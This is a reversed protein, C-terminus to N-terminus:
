LFSVGTDDFVGTFAAKGASLAGGSPTTGQTMWEIADRLEQKELVHETVYNTSSDLTLLGTIGVAACVGKQAVTWAFKGPQRLVSQHGPYNQGWLRSQQGNPGCLKLAVDRAGRKELGLVLHHFVEMEGFAGDRRDGITTGNYTDFGRQYPRAARVLSRRTPETVYAPLACNDDFVNVEVFVNDDNSGPELETNLGPLNAPAPCLSISPLSPATPTNPNDCCFYSYTGSRCAFSDTAVTVQGANCGTKCDTQFTKFVQTLPGFLM